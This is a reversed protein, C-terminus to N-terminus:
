ALESGFLGPEEGQTGVGLSFRDAIWIKGEGGTSLDYFSRHETEPCIM